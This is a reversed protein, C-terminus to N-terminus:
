RRTMAREIADRIDMIEESNTSEFAHTEGANTLLVLSFFTYSHRKRYSPLGAIALILAFLAYGESRNIVALVAVVAAAVWAILHGNTGKVFRTRVDISGIKDIAYSKTGVRVFHEDVSVLGNNFIM